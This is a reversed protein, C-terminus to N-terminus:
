IHLDFVTILVWHLVIAVKLLVLSSILSAECFSYSYTIFPSCCVIRRTPECSSSGWGSPLSWCWPSYCLGRSFWIKCLSTWAPSTGMSGQRGMGSICSVSLFLMKSNINSNLLLLYCWTFHSNTRVGESPSTTGRSTARRFLLHFWSVCRCCWAWSRSASHNRSIWRYGSIYWSLM